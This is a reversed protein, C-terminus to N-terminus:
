AHGGCQRIAARIDDRTLGIDRLQQDDWGLMLRYGRQEKMRALTDRITAAVHGLVTTFPDQTGLDTTTPATHLYTM